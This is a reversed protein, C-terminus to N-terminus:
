LWGFGKAMIGALGITVTIIAGFLLRFDGRMDKRIEKFEVKFDKLEGRIDTIDRKIYSIDSEMRGMCGDNDHNMQNNRKVSEQIFNGVSFNTSNM